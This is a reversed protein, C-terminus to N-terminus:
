CSRRCGVYREAAFIGYPRPCPQTNRGARASHSWFPFLRCPVRAPHKTFDCARSAVSRSTTRERAARTASFVKSLCCTMTRWLAAGWGPDEKEAFLGGCLILDLPKATREAHEALRDRMDPANAAELVEHGRLRLTLRQRLIPDPAGVLICLHEGNGVTHEANASM